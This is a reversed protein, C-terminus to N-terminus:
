FAIVVNADNLTYLVTDKPDGSAIHLTGYVDVQWTSPALEKGEGMNVLMVESPGPPSCFYCGRPKESVFWQSAHTASHLPLMFGRVTVQKGELQAVDQPLGPKRGYEWAAKTLEAWDANVFEGVPAQKSYGAPSPAVIAQVLTKSQMGAFVLVVGVGILLNRNRVKKEARSLAM